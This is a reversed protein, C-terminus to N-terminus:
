ALTVIARGGREDEIELSVVVGNRDLAQWLAVPGAVKHRSPAEEDGYSIVFDNDKGKPDCDIAVLAVGDTLAATGLDDNVAEIGVLRGCNGNAFLDCWEGWPEVSIEKTEDSALKRV